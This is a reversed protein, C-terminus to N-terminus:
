SEKKRRVGYENLIMEQLEFMEKEEKENMHDYGLLHLIGHVTLFSIERRLSHGYEEAQCIAKDLSIYIDGLIRTDTKVFTNDDELAFSIVDTARDIGRYDKNIQHIEEDCVIIINFMVNNLKMYNITFNVIDKLNKIEEINNDTNNIIDINNLLIM